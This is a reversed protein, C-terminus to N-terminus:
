LHANIGDRSGTLAERINFQIKRRCKSQIYKKYIVGSKCIRFFAFNSNHVTNCLQGFLIDANSLTKKHIAMLLEFYLM